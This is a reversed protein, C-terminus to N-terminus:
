VAQKCICCREFKGEREYGKRRGRTGVGERQTADQGRGTEESREGGRGTRCRDAADREGGKMKWRKGQRREGMEVWGHRGAGAREWAEM